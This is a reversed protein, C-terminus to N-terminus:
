GGIPASRERSGGRSMEATATLFRDYADVSQELNHRLAITRSWEGMLARGKADSLIALVARAAAADDEPPICYGNRGEEVLEPLAGARAAVVPLGSAIAELTTISQLEVRSTILYVDALRYILPFESDDLYGTFRVSGELCLDRAMRELRSRDAGNGGIVFQAHTSAAVRAACRLWVDMQKEADLRGTYLVVPRADLRLRERLGEDDGPSFRATDLGNSIVSIDRGFGLRKLSAAATITPTAVSDCRGLLFRLWATFARDAARYLPTVRRVGWLSCEPITHNTAAIPIHRRRAAGIAAAGLPFPHHVHVVDPTVADMWRATDHLPRRSVRLNYGFPSPITAARTVRIPGDEEEGRTGTASPALLFVNHGREALGTGLARLFAAPGGIWPFYFDTALGIRM